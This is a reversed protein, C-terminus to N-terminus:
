LDGTLPLTFRPVARRLHQGLNASARRQLQLRAEALRDLRLSAALARPRPAQAPARAAGPAVSSHPGAKSSPSPISELVGSGGSRPDACGPAGTRPRWRAPVPGEAVAHLHPRLVVALWAYCREPPAP